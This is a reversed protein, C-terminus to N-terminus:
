NSIVIHKERNLDIEFRGLNIEQSPMGFCTTKKYPFKKFLYKSFSYM